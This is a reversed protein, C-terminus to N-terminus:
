AALAERAMLIARWSDRNFRYGFWWRQRGADVPCFGALLMGGRFELADWHHGLEAFRERVAEEPYKVKSPRLAAVIPALDGHWAAMYTVPHAIDAAMRYRHHEYLKRLRTAEAAYVNGYGTEKVIEFPIHAEIEERTVPRNLDRTAIRALVGSPPTNITSPRLAYTLWHQIM